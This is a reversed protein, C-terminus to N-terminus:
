TRHQELVANIIFEARERPSHLPVDIVRYGLGSYVARVEDGFVRAAEVTMTREEDVVYISSWSPAMFVLENCRHRRAASEEASSDMGFFRAYAIIDPIGRDFFVPARDGSMRRFETVALSLM